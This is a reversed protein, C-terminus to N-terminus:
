DRPRAVCLMVQHGHQYEDIAEISFSRGIAELLEDRTRPNRGRDYRWLLKSVLRRDNRLGDVFVLKGATVRAMEALAAAFTADDLHHAVASCVVTKFSRPRFPLAAASAVVARAGPRRRALAAISVLDVDVSVPDRLLNRTAGGGASGVDLAGAPDDIARRLHRVTIPQGALLQILEYFLPRSAIWSAFAKLM